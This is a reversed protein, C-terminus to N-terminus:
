EWSVRYQNPYATEKKVIFGKEKLAEVARATHITIYCHDEMSSIKEEIRNNIYRIDKIYQAEQVSEKTFKIENKM